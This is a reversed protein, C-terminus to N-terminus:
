KKANSPDDHESEPREKRDLLEIVGETILKQIQYIITEDLQDPIKGTYRDAVEFVYEEITRQGNAALFVIQPWPDMTLIRPRNPDIVCITNTDVWSWSAKRRFYQNRQDFSKLRDFAPLKKNFKFLKLM